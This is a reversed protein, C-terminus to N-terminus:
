DISDSVDTLVLPRKEYILGQPPQSQDQDLANLADTQETNEATSDEIPFEGVEDEFEEPSSLFGRKNASKTTRTRHYFHRKHHTRNIGRTYHADSSSAQHKSSTGDGHSASFNKKPLFKSSTITTEKNNNNLKAYGDTAKLNTTTNSKNQATPVTSGTPSNGRVVTPEVSTSNVTNGKGVLTNVANSASQNKISLNHTKTSHINKPTSPVAETSSKPITTKTSPTKEKRQSLAVVNNRPIFAKKVSSGINSTPTAFYSKGYVLQRNNNMRTSYQNKYNVLPVFAAPIFGRTYQQQYSPYWSTQIPQYMNYYSPAPNYPSTITSKKDINGDISSHKRLKSRSQTSQQQLLHNNKYRQLLTPLNSGQIMANLSPYSVRAIILEQKPTRQQKKDYFYNMMPQRPLLLDKRPQNIISNQLSSFRGALAARLDRQPPYINNQPTVRGSGGTIQTPWPNSRRTNGHQNELKKYLQVWNPPITNKKLTTSRLPANNTSYAGDNPGYQRYTYFAASCLQECLCLYLVCTIFSGGSIM